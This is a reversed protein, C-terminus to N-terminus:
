AGGEGSPPAVEPLAPAHDIVQSLEQQAAKQQAEIRRALVILGYSVSDRLVASRTRKSLRAVADVCQALYADSYFALYVHGDPFYDRHQKPIKLTTM